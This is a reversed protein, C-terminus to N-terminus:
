AIDFRVYEEIRSEVTLRARRGLVVNDHENVGVFADGADAFDVGIRPDRM